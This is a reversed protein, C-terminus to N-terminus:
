TFLFCWTLIWLELVLRGGGVYVQAAPAISLSSPGPFHSVGVGFLYIFLQGSPYMTGAVKLVM